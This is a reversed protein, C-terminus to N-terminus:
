DYKSLSGVSIILLSQLKITLFFFGAFLIFFNMGCTGLETAVECFASKLHPKHQETQDKFM